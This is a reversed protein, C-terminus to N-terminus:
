STTIGGVPAYGLGRQLSLDEVLSCLIRVHLEM